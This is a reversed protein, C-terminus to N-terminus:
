FYKLLILVQIRSRLNNNRIGSRPGRFEDCYLALSKHRDNATAKLAMCTVTCNPEAGGWNQLVGQLHDSVEWREEGETLRVLFNADRRSILSGGHRLYAVCKSVDM